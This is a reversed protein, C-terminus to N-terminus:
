WTEVRVELNSDSPMINVWGSFYKRLYGEKGKNLNM